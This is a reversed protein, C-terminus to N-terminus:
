LPNYDKFYVITAFSYQLYKFGITPFSHLKKIGEFSCAFTANTALLLVNEVKTYMASM